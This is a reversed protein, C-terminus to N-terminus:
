ALEEVPCDEHQITAEIFISFPKVKLKLESKLFREFEQFVNSDTSNLRLCLNKGEFIPSVDYLAIRGSLDPNEFVMKVIAEAPAESFLWATYSADVVQYSSGERIICKRNAVIKKFSSPHIDRTLLFNHYQEDTEVWDENESANWGHFRCRDKFKNIIEWVRTMKM